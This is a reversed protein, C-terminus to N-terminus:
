VDIVPVVRVSHLHRGPALDADCDHFESPEFRSTAKAGDPAVKERPYPKPPDPLL